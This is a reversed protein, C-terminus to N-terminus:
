ESAPVTVQVRDPHVLSEKREVLDSELDTMMSELEADSYSATM